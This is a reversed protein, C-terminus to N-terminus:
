QYLRWVTQTCTGYIVLLCHAGTVLHAGPVTSHVTSQLPQNQVECVPVREGSGMSGGTLKAVEMHESGNLTTMLGILTDGGPLPISLLCPGQLTGTNGGKRSCHLRRHVPFRKWGQGRWNGWLCYEGAERHSYSEGM